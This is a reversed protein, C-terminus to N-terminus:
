CAEKEREREYFDLDIIKACYFCANQFNFSSTSRLKKPSFILAKESDARRKVTAKISDERTYEKRCLVHVTVSDLGELKRLKGDERKESSTNLGKQKVIVTDGVSIYNECIFCKEDSAMTDHM